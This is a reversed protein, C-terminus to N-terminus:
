RMERSERQKEVSVRPIRSRVLDTWSRAASCGMQGRLGMWNRQEAGQYEQEHM